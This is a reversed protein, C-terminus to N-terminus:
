CGVTTFDAMRRVLRGGRAQSSLFLVRESVNYHDSVQVYLDLKNDRDIDGAWLLRWDFSALQHTSGITYLVQEQQGLSLILQASALVAGETSNRHQSVVSLRYAKGALQLGVNAKEGLERGDSVTVVPGPRLMAAGRVLFVPDPRRRVSVKRGTKQGAEDGVPDHVRRVTVTSTLLTSSGRTVYLGLWREGTRAVVEDGHFAGVEVLRVGAAAGKAARSVVPTSLACTALVIALLTVTTRKRGMSNMEHRDPVM